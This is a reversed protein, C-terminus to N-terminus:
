GGPYWHEGQGGNQENCCQLDRHEADTSGAVLGDIGGDNGEVEAGQKTQVKGEQRGNGPVYACTSDNGSKFSRLLM